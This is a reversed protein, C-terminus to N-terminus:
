PIPMNVQLLDIVDKKTCYVVNCRELRIFNKKKVIIVMNDHKGLHLKYQAHLHQREAQLEESAHKEFAQLAHQHNLRELQLLEQKKKEATLQTEKGEEKDKDEEQVVQFVCIVYLM